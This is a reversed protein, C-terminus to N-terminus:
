KSSAFLIIANKKEVLSRYLNIYFSLISRSINQSKDVILYSFRKISSLCDWFMILNNSNKNFFVRFDKSIIIFHLQHLYIFSDFIRRAASIAHTIVVIWSVNQLQTTYYISYKITFLKVEFFIINMTYYISKTIIEQGRHIYSISTAISNKVSVDLIILM